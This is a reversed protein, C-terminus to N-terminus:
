PQSLPWSVPVTPNSPVPSPFGPRDLRLRSGLVSFFPFVLCDINGTLLARDFSATPLPSQIEGIASPGGRIVGAVLAASCEVGRRGGFLTALAAFPRSKSGGRLSTAGAIVGFVLPASRTATSSQYWPPRGDSITQNITPRLTPSHSNIMMQEYATYASCFHYHM